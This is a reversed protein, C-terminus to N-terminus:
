FSFGIKLLDVDIYQEKPIDDKFKKDRDTLYTGMKICTGWYFGSKAFYRFGLGFHAGLKTASINPGDNGFIWDSDVEGKRRLLKMGGCFFFGNQHKGIFRRYDLDISATLEEKRSTYNFPLVIEGHRDIFFFSVSGTISTGESAYFM